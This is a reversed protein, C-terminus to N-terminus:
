NREERQSQDRDPIPALAKHCTRGGVGRRAAMLTAITRPLERRPIKLWLMESNGIFGGLKARRLSSPLLVLFFLAREAKVLTVVYIM